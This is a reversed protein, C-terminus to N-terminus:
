RPIKNPYNSITARRISDRALKPFKALMSDVVIGECVYTSCGELELDAGVPCRALSMSVVVLKSGNMGLLEDGVTLAGARKGLLTHGPTLTLAFMPNPIGVALYATPTVGIMLSHESDEWITNGLDVGIVKHYKGDGGLVLSGFWIDELTVTGTPTEVRCSPDICSAGGGTGLISFSGGPKPKSGGGGGGSQGISALGPGMLGVLNPMQFMFGAQVSAAQYKSNLVTDVAYQVMGARASDLAVLSETTQQRFATRQSENAAQASAEGAILSSSRDAVFEMSGTIGNFAGLSVNSVAGVATSSLSALASQGSAAFSALMNNGAIGASAVQDSLAAFTDGWTKAAAAVGGELIRNKERDIDASSLIGEQRAKAEFQEARAQADARIGGVTAGARETLNTRIGSTVSDARERLENFTSTNESRLQNIRDLAFQRTESVARRGEERTGSVVGSLSSLAEDRGTRLSSSSADFGLDGLRQQENLRAESQQLIPDVNEVLTSAATDGAQLVRTAIDDRRILNLGELLFEGGAQAGGIASSLVGPVLADGAM